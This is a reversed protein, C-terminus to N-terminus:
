GPDGETVVRALTEAAEEPAAENEVLRVPCGTALAHNM